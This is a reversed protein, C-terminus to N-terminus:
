TLNELKKEYTSKKNFQLLVIKGARNHVCLREHLSKNEHSLFKKPCFSCIKKRADQKHKDMHEQLADPTYFLRGCSTCGYNCSSNDVICPLPDLAVRM